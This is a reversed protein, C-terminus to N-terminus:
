LSKLQRPHVPARVVRRWYVNDGFRDDVRDIRVVADVPLALARAVPDTALMLPLVHLPGLAAREAATAERHAPVDVHRLVNFQLAHVSWVECRVRGTGARWADALADCLEDTESPVAADSAYVLVFHVPTSSPRLGYLTCAADMARQVRVVSPPTGCRVAIGTVGAYAFHVRWDTHQASSRAADVTYGTFTHSGRGVAYTTPTGRGRPGSLVDGLVTFAVEYM